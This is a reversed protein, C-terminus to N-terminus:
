ADLVDEISTAKVARRLWTKIQDLDTCALITDRATQPVHVGNTELVTLVADAEGLAQNEAALTRFLESHYQDATVTMFSEWRERAPMPPGALVIDHYATARSLGVAQLAEGLAPFVRDILPDRSHCLASFVAAPNARAQEVDTILPVDEPTVFVPRLAVSSARDSEIMRRYSRADAPDPCYVFLVCSIDLEMEIQV